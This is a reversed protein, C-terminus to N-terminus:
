ITDTLKIIAQIAFHKNWEAADVLQCPTRIPAIADGNIIVVVLIIFTINIDIIEM